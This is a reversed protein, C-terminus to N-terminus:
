QLINFTLAAGKIVAGAVAVS